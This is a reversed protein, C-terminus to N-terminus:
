QEESEDVAREQKRKRYTRAKDRNGCVAMSCWIGSHNKSHDYFAKQCRENPCVKLRSWTSDAMAIFVASLLSGIVGDIGDIDPLLATQGDSQLHVRLLAHRAIHNFIEAQDPVFPQGSNTRLLARLMERVEIMRRYDGQTLRVEDGLLHHQLLWAQVQELTKWDDPRTRGYRTNIVDQVIALSAPARDSDHDRKEM